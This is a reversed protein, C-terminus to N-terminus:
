SGVGPLATAQFTGASQQANIWDTYGSAFVAEATTRAQDADALLDAATTKPAIAAQQLLSAAVADMRLGNEMKEAANLVDLVFAQNDVGKGRIISSPDIKALADAAATAADHLGKATDAIAKPHGNGSKLDAIDTKLDPLLSFAFGGPDQSGVGSLASQVQPSFVDMVSKEVRTETKARNADREHVFGWAIALVAAVVASLVGVQFGRRQVLRPKVPVYVPRPGPTVSRRAKPKSKGKIAL